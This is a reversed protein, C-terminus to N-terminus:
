FIEITTEVTIPTPRDSRDDSQDSSLKRKGHRTFKELIPRYTPLCACTIATAIHINSWLLINDSFVLSSNSSEARLHIIILIACVLVLIQNISWPWM